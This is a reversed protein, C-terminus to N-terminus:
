EEEAVGYLERRRAELLNPKLGLFEAASIPVRNSITSIEKLFESCSLDRMLHHDVILVEVCKSLAALNRKARDIDEKMYARGVLYTPPGDVIAVRSGCMFDIVYEELPGEVDSSYSVVEEGEEIRVMLVYGLRTSNGHPVPASFILKVDGLQVVQGDVVQVKAEVAKLKKLFKSARIRQSFNINKAPDKVLVLKSAYLDTPIRFGPDHHDYHYHTVVVVDSDALEAGIKSTYEKLSELELQHPPLGFRVPALAASPDIIIKANKTRVVTAMSRVGLSDFAIPIVEM